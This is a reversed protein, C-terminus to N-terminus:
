EQEFCAWGDNYGELPDANEALIAEYQSINDHTPEMYAHATIEIPYDANEENDSLSVKQRNFLLLKAFELAKEEDPFVVSFDIERPVALNDGEQAMAWLADGNDDNPFEKRNRKM